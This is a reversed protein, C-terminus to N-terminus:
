RAATAAHRALLETVTGIDAPKVLHHDFGAEVSKAQEEPHGWGTLAVLLMSGGWPEARVRRAVEYGNLRPLGIDLLMVEPRLSEALELASAGDHAVHTENGELELLSAIADAADRNDDVVLIRHPRYPQPGPAPQAAKVTMDLLVPLHVRFESGHGRGDSSVDISGGHLRALHQAMTLGVGLGDEGGAAARAFMDFISDQAEPAIGIGEDRVSIVLESGQRVASLWITTGPESYKSANSLLNGILQSLRVADAELRIPQSPLSVDLQQANREIMPRCTEIAQEVIPALDTRERRLELSRRTIRAIDVLDGVIRGLHSVQRELTEQARRRTAEEEARSALEVASRMAALPNRLEHALMALFETKAEDAERLKMEAISRDTIDVLVNVAARVAGREDHIPNAHALVTRRSGDAREILIEKGNYSRDEHLALAMWCQEHPIPAGTVDFLRFSGCYRDVPDNLLPARGWLELAHRNFYTILGEADTTYAAAPLQELLERFEIDSARSFGARWAPLLAESPTVM